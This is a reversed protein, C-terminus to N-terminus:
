RMSIQCVFPALHVAHMEKVLQEKLKQDDIFQIQNDYELYDIKCQAKQQCHQLKLAVNFAIENLTLAHALFAVIILM